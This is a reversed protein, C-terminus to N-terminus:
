TNELPADNPSCGATDAQPLPVHMGDREHLRAGCGLGGLVTVPSSPHHAGLLPVSLHAYDSSVLKAEM